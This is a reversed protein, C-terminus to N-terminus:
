RIQYFHSVKELDEGPVNMPRPHDFFGIAAIVKSARYGRKETEVAFAGDRGEVNLVSEYLRIHLDHAEVVRRYYELAELRTPKDGQIIFPVGGIETM